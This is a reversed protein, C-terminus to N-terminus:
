KLLKGALNGSAFSWQLNYGGCPGDLDMVEGCFYLGEIIKSQMTKPNIEKLSVGGRTIMAKEFGVHDIVTLPTWVITKVLKERTSGELDKFKKKFDAGVLTCIEKIVSVPLLKSLTEEINLTSFKKFHQFLEEENKGKIMNVFLPVEEYKELLPTIERSFDLVVPGRIGKPTFILDGCAKLKKAKKLNIRIEAKAITDAKCNAVWKEKTILPLMAPYLETIKHGLSKAFEFGDGNAGLSSFGLGGTAVIINPAYFNKDKAIVGKITENECILDNVKTAKKIEVNVRQLEKQLAEIITLSNHTVPFVRFGDPIHTDVRIEKLFSILDNHNFALIAESMFKGNKGFSNMFDENSLTNTLNCKGGGTAKLKPGLKDKQECLLVKKGERAAIIASIMGAAGSGIVILDYESNKM